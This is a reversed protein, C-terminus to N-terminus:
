ISRGSWELGRQVEASAFFAGTSVAFGVFLRQLSRIDSAEVYRDRPERAGTRMHDIPYRHTSAFSSRRGDTHSRTVSDPSEVTGGRAPGPRVSAVGNARNDSTGCCSRFAKRIVPLELGDGPSGADKVGGDAEGREFFGRQFRQHNQGGTTNTTSNMTRTMTAGGGCFEFGEATGGAAIDAGAVPPAAAESTVTSAVVRSVYAAGPYSNPTPGEVPPIRGAHGDSTARQCGLGNPPVISDMEARPGTLKDAVTDSRSPVVEVCFAIILARLAWVEISKRLLGVTSTVFTTRVALSPPSPFPPAHTAHFVDALGGDSVWTVYQWPLLQGCGMGVSTIPKFRESAVIDDLSIPQKLTASAIETTSPCSTM